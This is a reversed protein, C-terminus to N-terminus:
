SMSAIFRAVRRPWGLIETETQAVAFDAPRLLEQLQEATSVPHAPDDARALVQVPLQLRRLSAADPLDSRAAGLYVAPATGPALDPASFPQDAGITPTPAQQALLNVFTAFGHRHLFDVAEEYGAAQAARTGWATPPILLSLSALPFLGAVAAHLLTGAGMSAGVGHVPRGPFAQGVVQAVLDAHAAWTHDAPDTSGTSKGHGPADIRLVRLQGAGATASSGTADERARSSGLGHLQVVPPGTVPGSLTASLRLPGRPTHVIFREEEASM